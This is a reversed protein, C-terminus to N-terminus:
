QRHLHRKEASTFGKGAICRANWYMVSACSPNHPLGFGHGLEHLVTARRMALKQHYRPSLQIVVRGDGYWTALGMIGAQLSKEYLRVCGYKSTRTITPCKGYKVRSGTEKNIKKVAWRYPWATGRPLHSEVYYVSKGPVSYAGRVPSPSSGGTTAASTTVRESGDAHIEHTTVPAASAPAPAAAIATGATMLVAAAAAAFRASRAPSLDTSM